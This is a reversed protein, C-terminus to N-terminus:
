GWLAHYLNHGKDFCHSNLPKFLLNCCDAPDTSPGNYSHCSLFILPCCLAISIFQTKPPPFLLKSRHCKGMETFVQLDKWMALKWSVLDMDTLASKLPATSLGEQSDASCAETGSPCPFWNPPQDLCSTITTHVEREESCVAPALGVNWARWHGFGGGEMVSVLVVVGLVVLIKWCILTLSTAIEGWANVTEGGTCFYPGIDKLLLFRFIAEDKLEDEWLWTTFVRLYEPMVDRGGLTGLLPCSLFSGWLDQKPKWGGRISMFLSM